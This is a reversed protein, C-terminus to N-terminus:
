LGSKLSSSFDPLNSTCTIEFLLPAIKESMLLGYLFPSHSEDESAYLFNMTIIRLFSPPSSFGGKKKLAPVIRRHLIFDGGSRTRHAPSPAYEGCMGCCSRPTTGPGTLFIYLCGTFFNYLCTSMSTQVLYVLSM